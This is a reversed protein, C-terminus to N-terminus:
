APVMDKTERRWHRHQALAEVFRPAFGAVGCGEELGVAGKVGAKAAEDVQARDPNPEPEKM